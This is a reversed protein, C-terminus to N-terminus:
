TEGGLVVLPIERDTMQTAPIQVFSGDKGEKCLKKAVLLACNIHSM